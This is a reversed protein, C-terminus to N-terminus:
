SPFSRALAAIMEIQADDQALGRTRVLARAGQIFPDRRGQDHLQADLEQLWSHGCRREVAQRLPGQAPAWLDEMRLYGPM